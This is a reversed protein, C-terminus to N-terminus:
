PWRAKDIPFTGEDSHFKGHSLAMAVPNAKCEALERAVDAIKGASVLAAGGEWKTILLEVERRLIDELMM